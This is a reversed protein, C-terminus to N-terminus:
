EEHESQDQPKRVRHADVLKKALNHYKAANRKDGKNTYQHELLVYLKARMQPDAQQLMGEMQEIRDCRKGIIIDYTLQSDAIIAKNDSAKIEDLMKLADKRRGSMVYFNFAQVVLALRRKKSLKMNLLHDLMIEAAQKNGDAEYITFRLYYQKFTSFLIRTYVKDLLDIADQYLEATYLMEIKIDLYKKLVESGIIYVIILVAVAITVPNLELM